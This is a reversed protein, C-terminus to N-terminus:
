SAPPAFLRWGTALPGLQVCNDGREFHLTRSGDLADSDRRPLWGFPEWALPDLKQCSVRRTM